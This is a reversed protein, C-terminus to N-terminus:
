LDGPSLPKDTISLKVKLSKGKEIIKYVEVSGSGEDDLFYEQYGKEKLQNADKEIINEIKKRIIKGAKRHAKELKEMHEWIEDCKNYLGCLKMLAFFTEKDDSRLSKPNLWYVINHFKISKRGGYEKIKEITKDLGLRNIEQRLRFKWDKRNAYMLHAEDEFISTEKELMTTAREGQFLVFEGPRILDVKKSKVSIKGLPSKELVDQSQDYSSDNRLLAVKGNSLQFLTSKVKDLENEKKLDVDEITEENLNQEKLKEFIESLDSSLSLDEEFIEGKLENEITYKPKISEIYKVNLSKISLNDNSIFLNLNDYNRNLWGFNFVNVYHCIDMYSIEQLLEPQPNFLSISDIKKFNPELFYNIKKIFKHFKNIKYNGDYLLINDFSSILYENHDLFLNTTSSQFEKFKKIVYDFEKQYDPYAVCLIDKIKKINISNNTEILTACDSISIPISNCTKIFKWYFGLFKSLNNDDIRYKNLRKTLSSITKSFYEFDQAYITFVKIYDKKYINNIEFNEIFSENLEIM